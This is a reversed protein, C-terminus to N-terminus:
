WRKVRGLAEGYNAIRGSVKSALSLPRLRSVRELEAGSM